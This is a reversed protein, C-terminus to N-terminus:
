ITGFSKLNSIFLHFVQERPLIAWRSRIVKDLIQLAFFKTHPNQSYELITDVRNWADPHEQFQTLVNQAANRQHHSVM